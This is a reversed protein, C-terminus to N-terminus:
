ECSMCGPAQQPVDRDKRSCIHAKELPWHLALALEHLHEPRHEVGRQALARVVHEFDLRERSSGRFLAAPVRARKHAYHVVQHTRDRANLAPLRPKCGRERRLRVREPTTHVHYRRVRVPEIFPQPVLEHALHPDPVPVWPPIPGCSSDTQYSM